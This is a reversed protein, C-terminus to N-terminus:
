SGTSTVTVKASTTVNGALDYARAELVHAGAAVTRSNWPVSYSASRDYGVLKGDVYLNVKEVRTDDAASIAVNVTGSVPAGFSSTIRVSPNGADSAQRCRDLTFRDFSSGTTGIGELFLTCGSVNVRTYSYSKSTRVTWSSTGISYLPGGGGGTVVYTVGQKTRDTSERWPVSREFGHDHGTLVLQVGNAEFLPGFAQRVPLESGHEAGSSYPPRHFYAIKWPQSTSSLDAAAWQLQVQRRAPDQFATETDLAIFHIPGYDFSYYREAHDPYASAGAEDPLVFLKLYAAGNNNSPRSDHNGTIPFFGRSPLWSRYIDFFWSHYTKFTADGIGSSQGYVIDGVHLAFDFTDAAMQAALSKQSTSGTGSDGFAIFRVSGTGPAPATRFSSSAAATGGVLVTYPYVTSADLGSVRAEHQYYDTTLGTTTAAFRTTAAAITRGDIKVAGSGSERSAWVIVVSRDGLQMLYPQRVLTMSGTPAPPPPSVLFTNDNKNAGPAKTLYTSPSLVIQDIFLGDERNQVRLKQAGTTAFRIEPGLTTSTGWGNDEWGWGANGCGSCDELNIEASTTSGIRWAAQGSANISNTFQVHVSDNTSSNGDARGRIWLRYPTNAVADFSLEFYDAPSAVPTVVKARGTNPLVTARGGAATSDAVTTWAGKLAANAALLIVDPPEAGQTLDSSTVFPVAIALVAAAVPLGLYTRPGM